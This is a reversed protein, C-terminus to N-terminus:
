DYLKARLRNLENNIKGEACSDVTHGNRRNIILDNLSGVSGFLSLIKDLTINMPKTNSSSIIGMLTDAWFLEGVSRLLSECEKLNALIEELNADSNYYLHPAANIKHSNVPIISLNRM